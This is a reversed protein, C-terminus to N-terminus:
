DRVIASGNIERESQRQNEEEQTESGAITLKEFKLLTIM